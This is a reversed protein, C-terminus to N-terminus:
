FLELYLKELSGRNKNAFNAGTGTNQLRNGSNHAKITIPEGNRAVRQGYSTIDKAASIIGKGVNRNWTGVSLGSHGNKVDNISLSGYLAIAGNGNQNIRLYDHDPPADISKTIIKGKVTLDDVILHKNNYISAINQMATTDIVGSFGEIVNTKILFIYAFLIIILILALNVKYETNMIM